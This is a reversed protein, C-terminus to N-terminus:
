NQKHGRMKWFALHAEECPTILAADLLALSLHRM